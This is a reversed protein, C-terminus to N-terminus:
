EKLIEYQSENSKYGSIVGYQINNERLLKFAMGDKINYNKHIIGNNDITIKGDTFVGDFDFVIFKM